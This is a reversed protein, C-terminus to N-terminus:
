RAELKWTTSSFSLKIWGPGEEKKRSPWLRGHEECSGFLIACAARDAASTCPVCFFLFQHYSSTKEWRLSKKEKILQLVGLKVGHWNSIYITTPNQRFM